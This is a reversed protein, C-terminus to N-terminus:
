SIYEEGTDVNIVRHPINEYFKDNISNVMVAPRPGLTKRYVSSHDLKDTGGKDQQKSLWNNIFRKYNYKRKDPNALLWAKMKLLEANIDCAPYAEKWVKKDEVTINEWDMTKFNFNIKPFGNKVGYNESNNELEFLSPEATNKMKSQTLPLKEKPLDGSASDKKLNAFEVTGSSAEHKNEQSKDNIAFKVSQYERGDKNLKYSVLFPICKNENIENVAPNLVFDKLHSLHSYSECNFIKKLKLIDIVPIAPANEYDKCLEYLKIAYKNKFDRIVGMDIQAYMNNILIDMVQHPFSYEVTGTGPRVTIGALLMFKNEEKVSGDKGLVNYECEIHALEDLAERTRRNQTNRDGSLAKLDSLKIAFKYDTPKKRLSNKAFFLLANYNKYQTLTLTKSMSMAIIASPKNLLECTLDYEM